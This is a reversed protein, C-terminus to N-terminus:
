LLSKGTVILQFNLQCHVGTMQCLFRGGDELRARPIILVSSGNALDAEVKVGRSEVMPNLKKRKYWIVSRTDFASQHSWQVSEIDCNADEQRPRCDFSILSGAAAVRTVIIEPSSSSSDAAFFVYFDFM